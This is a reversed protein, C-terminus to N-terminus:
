QISITINVPLERYSLRAQLANDDMVRLFFMDCAAWALLLIALQFHSDRNYDKSQLVTLLLILSCYWKNLVTGQIRLRLFVIEIKM